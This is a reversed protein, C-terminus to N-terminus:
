SASRLVSYRRALRPSSIYWQEVIHPNLDKMVSRDDNNWRVQKLEGSVSDHGLVPYATKPRFLETPEGAAHAPIPIRSLLDYYEPHLEKLISAM